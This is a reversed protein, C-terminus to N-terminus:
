FIDLSQSSVLAGARAGEVEVDIRGKKGKMERKEERRGETQRGEEKKWRVEKTM